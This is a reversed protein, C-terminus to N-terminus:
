SLMSQPFHKFMHTNAMSVSRLFGLMLTEAKWAPLDAGVHVRQGWAPGCLFLKCSLRTIDLVQGGKHM